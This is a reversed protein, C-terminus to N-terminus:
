RSNQLYAKPPQLTDKWRKKIIVVCVSCGMGMDENYVEARNGGCKRVFGTLIVNKKCLFGELMRM